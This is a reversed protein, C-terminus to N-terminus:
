EVFLCHNAFRLDNKYREFLYFFFVFVPGYVGNWVISQRQDLWYYIIGEVGCVCSQREVNVKPESKAVYQPRECFGARDHSRGARGIFARM